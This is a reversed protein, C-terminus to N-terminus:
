ELEFDGPTLLDLPAEPQAVLRRSQNLIAEELKNRALRGNGNKAADVAQAQDYFEQLPPDCEPALVYGRSKANLKTIALLEPGTYDPFEIQNPFRSRLGSNAELFDAMEKSYGALIVVLNERNDEMGKVLADIAELGFSDDQGRCLAYAEDIFLVGGLASQIVKNTLPATHGVYRGVLDARSVEVLQGGSLAGIAKLYKGVLRAITTKGTGPNGTFIMHMSISATKMGAAARRRQVLVNDELSLVYDKVEDLGVIQEMEAKVEDLAATYERPLVELLDVPEAEGFRALLRGAEGRSLTVEPGAAAHKLKYEALAEMCKNCFAVLESVSGRAAAVVLAAVDEGEPQKELALKFGLREKALKSVRNLQLLAIARLDEPAFPQATCVDRVANMFPVGLLDAMKEPSKGAFFVLYKGEPTLSSVAGPVLATGAEVLMGKQVVYRSALPASGKVALAALMSLCGAHSKECNEFAVVQGPGALAAYLDQLFLKEQAPGPYLALDLWAIQGGALLDKQALLEVVTNLAYHRGTGKPGCILLVNRAAKGEAGMVYPRQFAGLLSAVFKEQGLIRGTALEATERFLGEAEAPGPAKRAARAEGPSLLGDAEMNRTLSQGMQSIEAAQRKLEEDLASSNKLLQEGSVAEDARRAAQQRALAAELEKQAEALANQAEKARDKGEPTSFNLKGGSGFVGSMLDEWDNSM